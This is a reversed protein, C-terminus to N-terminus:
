FRPTQSFFAEAERYQFGLRRAFGPDQHGSGVYICQPPDLRYQQIFLAGLGPLPKRCWCVPPGGAHPCYRVDIPVGLEMIMRNFCADIEAVSMEEEAIEPRWSLGLLQWGQALYRRLVEGQSKTTEVDEPSLPSRRGSRSRILVDDCWLVVARNGHSPDRRREFPVIDITSFGESLHPPEIERQHRFQVAPGFASVDTRAALRIEEPGLLRGYRALMRSSANVQADEVSTQLWVCRAPLGARGASQIVSARSKRSVYTNDLVIRSAGSQLLRDLQPLLERLSGGDEDRNLRAYGKEVFTQAATTKGAGPLGMILVVESDSVPDSVPDSRKILPSLPSRGPRRLRQGGPFREDLRARDDETLRLAHLRTLASATEVRTAGAIPVIMQSLDLLWALAIDCAGVDHRAALDALLAESKARLARRPGGLPRHAILRIENAVCYEAVGSLLNDDNWISLEVQVADIDALRRADEIQGVTVNCLGIHEILGNRKLSALARVSTSLPTRPDAAHLQYLGIRDVGLARLSAECAAALHRARGDAVWRGDPRTLGGKTAVVVRAADGSWSALARAVLRENHGVERDDWCYADATDLVTVGADLAAHLVGIARADDRDRETSLRMCGM